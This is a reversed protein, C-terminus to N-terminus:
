SRGERGRTLILAQLDTFFFSASPSDCPTYSIPSKSAVYLQSKNQKKSLIMRGLGMLLHETFPPSESFVTHGGGPGGCTSAWSSGRLYKNKVCSAFLPLCASHILFDSGPPGLHRNQSLGAPEPSLHVLVKLPFRKQSKGLVRWLAM